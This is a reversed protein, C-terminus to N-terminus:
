VGMFGIGMAVWGRLSLPEVGYLTSFLAIFLPTTYIALAAVSLPILPLASYYTVWM